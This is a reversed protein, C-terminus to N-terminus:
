VRRREYRHAILNQVLPPIESEEVPARVDEAERADAPPAVYRLEVLTHLARAREAAALRM